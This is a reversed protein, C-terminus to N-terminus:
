KLGLSLCHWLTDLGGYFQVCKRSAFYHEFDKLSPILLIHVSFNWISLYPKLSASFGSILNGSDTPEYFFCPFELFVDVEAENVVSLGKVTYIVVFQPFNKFLYSCWVVQGAEQSIQIHTLFCCNSDFMSCCVTEFSSFSYLLDAYQPRRSASRGHCLDHPLLSSM